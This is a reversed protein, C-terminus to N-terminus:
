KHHCSSCNACNGSCSCGGGKKHSKWLSRAAFAAVVALVALVIVDGFIGPM